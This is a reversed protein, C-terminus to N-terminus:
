GASIGDFNNANMQVNGAVRAQPVFSENKKSANMVGVFSRKSAVPATFKSASFNTRQSPAVTAVTFLSTQVGSINQTQNFM